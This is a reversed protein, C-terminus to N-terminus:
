FHPLLFPILVQFPLGINGIAQSFNLSSLYHKTWRAKTCLNTLMLGMEIVLPSYNNTPLILHLFFFTSKCFSFSISFNGPPNVYAKLCGNDKFPFNYVCVCMGWLCVQASPSQGLEGQSYVSSDTGVRASAEEEAQLGSLCISSTSAAGPKCGPLRRALVCSSVKKGGQALSSCEASKEELEKM